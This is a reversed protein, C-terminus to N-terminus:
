WALTAWPIRGAPKFIYSREAECCSTAVDLYLLSLEAQLMDPAICTDM